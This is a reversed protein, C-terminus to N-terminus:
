PFRVELAHHYPHGTFQIAMDKCAESWNYNHFDDTYHEFAADAALAVLKARDPPLLTFGYDKENGLVLERRFAADIIMAGLAPYFVPAAPQYGNLVRSAATALDNVQPRAGARHLIALMLWEGLGMLSVPGMRQVVLSRATEYDADQFRCAFPNNPAVTATSTAFSDFMQGRFVDDLVTRGLIEWFDIM